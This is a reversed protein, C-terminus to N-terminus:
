KALVLVADYSGQTDEAQASATATIDLATAKEIASVLAPNTEKLYIFNGASYDGKANGTTVNTFKDTALKTKIQGAYGAKATANVILLKLKSKDLTASSSAEPTPTPTPEPSPTVEEVEVPPTQPANQQGSYKLIAMGVGVGIAVTVIFVGTTILIMKLM